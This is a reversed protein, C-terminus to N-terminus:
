EQRREEEDAGNNGGNNGPVVQGVAGGDGAGLGGARDGLLLRLDEPDIEGM